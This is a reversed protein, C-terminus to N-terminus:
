GDNSGSKYAIRIRVSLASGQRQSFLNRQIILAGRQFM